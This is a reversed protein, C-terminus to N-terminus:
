RRRYVLVRGAGKWDLRAELASAREFGELVFLLRLLAIPLMTIHTPDLTDSTAVDLIHRPYRAFRTTVYVYAGTIACLNTVAKRLELVTLHELVERCIVLEPRYPLERPDLTVIDQRQIELGDHAPVYNKDLGRVWGDGMAHQELLMRMLHGPGCGVDLINVPGFTERILRAHPGEAAVRGEYSYDTVPEWPVQAPRQAASIGELRAVAENDSM